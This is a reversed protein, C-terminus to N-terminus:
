RIRVLLLTQDDARAGHADVASFVAQHIKELPEASRAEIIARLRVEGFLEGAVNMVEVLGDTYLVLLDGPNSEVAQASFDSTEVVGLPLHENPLEVLQKERAHHWLISLHGALAYEVQRGAGMRLCAFTVFRGPESVEYIVRNLDAVLGALDAHRRVVTRVASKVMAMIVGAAVGHGSVDAVIMTATDGNQCLDLLDGGMESSPLSVGHVEFRPHSFAIAPVLTEHIRQALAIETRLRQNRAEEVRVYTVFLVYAAVLFALCAAAELVRAPDFGGMGIARALSATPAVFDFIPQYFATLPVLVILLGRRAQWAYAWGASILGAFICTFAVGYWPRRAVLCIDLLVGITAFAFFTGTFLRWHTRWAVKGSLPKGRDVVAVKDEQAM